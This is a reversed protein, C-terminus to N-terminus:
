SLRLAERGQGFFAAPDSGQDVLRVSGVAVGHRRMIAMSADVLAQTNSVEPSRKLTCNIFLAKLGGFDWRRDDM